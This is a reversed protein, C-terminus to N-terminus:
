RRQNGRELLHNEEVYVPVLSYLEAATGAPLGSVTVDVSDTDCEGLLLQFAAFGGRAGFIEVSQAGSSYEWVDPYTFEASSVVNYKM